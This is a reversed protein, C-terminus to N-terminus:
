LRVLRGRPQPTFIQIILVQPCCAYSQGRHQRIKSHLCVFRESQGWLTGVRYGYGTFRGKEHSNPGAAVWSFGKRSLLRGEPQPMILGSTQGNTEIRRSTVLWRYEGVHGLLDCHGGYWWVASCRHCQFRAALLSKPHRNGAPISPWSSHRFISLSADAM